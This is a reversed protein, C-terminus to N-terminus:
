DIAHQIFFRALLHEAAWTGVEVTPILTDMDYVVLRLEYVGEPLHAPPVLIHLSESEEGPLWQSPPDHVWNWIGWDQQYVLNGEQDHLRLSLRYDAQPHATARWHFVIWIGQSDVYFLDETLSLQQGSYSGLAVSHLALNGDFNIEFEDLWEYLNWPRDLLPQRFIKVEHDTYYDIRDLKAYKQLLFPVRYTADAMWNRKWAVAKIQVDSAPLNSEVLRQSLMTPFDEDLTRFLYAPVTRQYLFDFNYQNFDSPYRNSYPIIYIVGDENSERNVQDVLERWAPYNEVYMTEVWETFYAHYTDIGRTIVMGTAFGAIALITFSRHGRWRRGLSVLLEASHWLGVGILLFAAPLAALMRLTNPPSAEPDSSLLAPLLLLGLWFLLLRYTPLRWYFFVMGLGIWFFLAEVANLLPRQDLNALLRPDGVFGFAGLHLVANWFLTTAARALGHGERVFTVEDVLM